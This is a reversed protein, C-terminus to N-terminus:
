EIILPLVIKIFLKKRKKPSEINKLEKPLKTLQNGANVLKTKKVTELNYGNDKFLEEITSASLRQPDKDEEDKGFVDIDEFINWSFRNTTTDKIIKNKKNQKDFIKDFNKKSSNFIVENSKLNSTIFSVSNPLISFILILFLSAILTKFFNLNSNDKKKLNKKM